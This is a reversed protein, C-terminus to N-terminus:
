HAHKIRAYYSDPRDELEQPTGMEIVRGTDLAIIRDAHAITTLRHAIILVTIQGQLDEIAQQILKESETDLASTAEDLILLDPKRALVRALAVRQRQGGSLMVGRDGVMTQYGDKLTLVFDHINARKAAETIAEHSLDPYYFRINEEITDNLLFVDQAVYGVHARWNEMDINALPNGDVLIEGSTPEFLRLLMDAVTTKGAGSPGILAITEGKTISFSVDTLAHTEDQYQLSVQKFQIERELAFQEHGSVRVERHETLLREFQELNRAYPILSSVNNLATQGSELYTFMKQILYLTAAFAILNFGPRHYVISFLIIVFFISFPQFLATSLSQLLAVRISLRRLYSFLGKSKDYAASEAAGAKVTKMGLIHEGLFNSIQKETTVIAENRARMRHVIPRIAVFLACGCVLTSITVLPSISLAVSFYMLLGTYSQIVQGMTGLLGTTSQIDRILTAQVYGLKQRLLFSWSAAFTKQFMEESKSVAFDTSIWSRVYSFVVTAVARALFLGVIFALLFRFTFPVHVFAFFSAVTRSIIDTPQGGNTFFTILPIAANIGIGEFIAGVFGLAVLVVFHWRYKSFIRWLISISTM